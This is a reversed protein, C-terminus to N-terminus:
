KPSLLYLDQQGGPRAYVIVSLDRSFDYGNGGSYIPFGFPVTYAVQAPGSIKGDRWPQRYITVSNRASVAYLLSKQDPSLTVGFTAVEALKTCANDATSIESIGTKEGSGEFTIVYKGDPTADSVFGCGKAIIHADSGDIGTKWTIALSSGAEIAGVYVSKEDASFIFSGAFEGNWPIEHVSSGDAAAVYIKLKPGSYDGYLFRTADRTWTGTGLNKGSAIKVKEKGNLTSVWLEVGQAGTYTVYIARKKDPSLAPQGARAEAIDTSEKTRTDYATLFGTSKGNVYYIGRGSPDPMPSSDPGPGFTVQSLSGDALNMRWINQIGNVQRPLLLSKGPQDWVPYGADAISARDVISHDRIHVDQLIVKGNNTSGAVLLEDGSPFPLLRGPSFSKTDISLIKEEGLGSAQSQMLVRSEGQIYYLRQGDLSSALTRAEVVRRPSGGLTPVGWIEERGLTRRYYIERGDSSFDQIVKDGEDTTLQLPAGGSTLMVFVQAIGNVPSAFTVTHGDPSLRAHSMLKNWESIQTVKGPASARPWFRYAAIAAIVLVVCAAIVFFRWGRRAQAGAAAVQASSLAAVASIAQTEAASVSATSASSSIHGSTTDRRIRKLDARMEAASQSRLDRDKELGKNIVDELKPPLDPNLRVAPTPPRNLIAETIVGSTEGRFPLAGTAMEYLVVGFSFLDTRADLQKGRVQEPSMYAVTGVATGPSTLDAPNVQPAIEGSRLADQTIAMQEPSAPRMQKALGFDLIKAHGRETVFINAPKIDRHVIGKAHAADLADAIEIGLDLLLELEMPRGAIVHKLTKGDLLEMVIYAQGNDEGIDYITCINPHNLASAAQAERRFRELTQTDQALEAPLFKLAVNRRLHTDEAKYVVGMGGGGLKEVIRYRAVMRGITPQADPM